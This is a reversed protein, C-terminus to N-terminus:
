WYTAKIRLFLGNVGGENWEKNNYLGSITNFGAMTYGATYEVGSYDLTVGTELGLTDSWVTRSLDYDTLVLFVELAKYLIGADVGMEHRVSDDYYITQYALGPNFDFSLVPMNLSIGASLRLAKDLHDWLPYTTFDDGKTYKIGVSAAAKMPKFDYTYGGSSAIKFADGNVSAALEADWNKSDYWFSSFLNPVGLDKQYTIQRIDTSGSEVGILDPVAAGQIGFGNKGTWKGGIWLSQPTMDQGLASEIGASRTVQLWKHVPDPSHYGAQVQFDAPLDQELFLSNLYFYSGDISGKSFDEFNVEEIGAVTFLRASDSLESQLYLHLDDLQNYFQPDGKEADATDTDLTGWVMRWDL